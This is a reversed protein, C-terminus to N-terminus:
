SDGECGTQDQTYEEQDGEEDGYESHKLLIMDGDAQDDEVPEEYGVADDNEDNAGYDPEVGEM